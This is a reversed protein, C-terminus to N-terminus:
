PYARDVPTRGDHPWRVMCSKILPIQQIHGQLLQSNCIPPTKRGRKHATHTQQHMKPIESNPQHIQKSTVKEWNRKGLSKGASSNTRLDRGDASTAASSLNGKKRHDLDL